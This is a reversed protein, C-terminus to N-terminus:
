PSQEKILYTDVVKDVVDFYHAIGEKPSPSYPEDPLTEIESETVSGSSVSSAETSNLHSFMDKSIRNPHDGFRQTRNRIIAMTAHLGQIARARIEPNACQKLLNMADAAVLLWHLEVICPLKSYLYTFIKSLADTCISVLLLSREGDYRELNVGDLTTSKPAQMVRIELSLWQVYYIQSLHIAYLNPCQRIRDVSLLELPSDSLRFHPPLGKWFDYLQTELRQLDYVSLVGLRGISLKLKINDDEPCFKCDQMRVFEHLAEVANEQVTGREIWLATPYGVGTDFLISAFDDLGDYVAYLSLELYRISYLLRRWCEAEIRAVTQLRDHDGGLAHAYRPKLQLIMRWAMNMYIRAETNELAILASQSLFFLTAATFLDSDHEFLIEELQEKAKFRFSDALSEKTLPFPIQLHHLHQCLNFASFSVLANTLMSDLHDLFMPMYHARPFIPNLLGPCEFYCWVLQQKLQNRTFDDCASPITTLSLKTKQQMFSYLVCEIQLIPITIPINEQSRDAYYNPTRFPNYSPSFFRYTEAMFSGVDKIDRITTQLSTGKPGYTVTLQWNESSNAPVLRRSNTSGEEYDSEQGPELELDFHLDRLQNELQVLEDELRKVQQVLRNKKSTPVPKRLITPKANFKFVCFLNSKLCRECQNGQVIVCKRRHARCNECPKNRKQRSDESLAM